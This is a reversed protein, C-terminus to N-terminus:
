SLRTFWGKETAVKVIDVRTQLGLKEMSRVKYTEVTKVSVGLQVAIEKNTYGRAILQLVETERESLETVDTGHSRSHVLSQVLKGAVRPDVYIGGSAVARIALILEEAAARKLVYGSAGTELLERVYVREEHVTLAVIKVGPCGAKIERAALTGSLGPMSLDMVIVDPQLKRVQAVADNGDAAEGIVKMDSEADILHKLGERVVTHDDALIIKLRTPLTM